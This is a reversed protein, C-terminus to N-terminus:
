EDHKNYVRYDIEPFINDRSEVEKLWSEDYEGRRIMEDLKLFRTVHDRVRRVAYEVMTGTKMIFAWDSSQALVLERAAQNLARKEIGKAESRETALDIMREECEHFHRYIWDNCEDLWVSAYGQDGWTSFTPEQEQHEPYKELYEWPTTLEFVKSHPIKRILHNLFDPGEYWWHGYLEADYPSLIIPPKGIKEYLYEIQKERNFMFNGAHNETTHQARWPDYPEKQNLSIEKATIRYYKIGTNTRFGMPHIYPKIYDYEADYGLDRYFERYNFDGPYGEDASWVQKSSEIDRGFVAVGDKTIVPAFVGYKPRPSGFLIGHADTFTFRIGAERLHRDHGPWYGCEALWIGRPKRGFHKKYSKAAIQIQARVATPNVYMLPLFGHTACCTVIELNGEDQVAKFGNLINGKYREVFTNRARKFRELYMVATRNFHPMNHTRVIEKEALEILKEIHLQYRRQLLSDSLMNALPPTISMTIKFPVKDRILSEYTHLLPIYTETIAEYLWDEELFEEHEPHRVFPLHAHLLLALYGKPNKM